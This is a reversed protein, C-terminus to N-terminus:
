ERGQGSQRVRQVGGADLGIGPLIEGLTRAGSQGSERRVLERETPRVSVGSAAVPPRQELRVETEAGDSSGQYKARLEESTPLGPRWGHAADDASDPPAQAKPVIGRQECARLIWNRWTAPWDHKTADKGSKATWYNRFKESELEIDREGLGQRRAFDVDAKWDAPIRSARKRADELSVGKEQTEKSPPQPQLAQGITPPDNAQDNLSEAVVTPRDNSSRERARAQASAKGGARGAASIRAAETLEFEIRKHRWGDQFFAQVTPRARRWEAASMKAIRALARDDDPPPTGTSWYHMLLHLYAGSEAASLHATDAIYDGVYLPM